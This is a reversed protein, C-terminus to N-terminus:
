SWSSLWCVCSFDISIRLKLFSSEMEKLADFMCGRPVAPKPGSKSLDLM